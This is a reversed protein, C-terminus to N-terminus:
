SECSLVISSWASVSQKSSSSLGLFLGEIQMGQLLSCAFPFSHLISLGLLRGRSRDECIHEEIHSMKEQYIAVVNDSLFHKKKKDCLHM